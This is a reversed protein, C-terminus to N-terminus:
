REVRAFFGGTGYVGGRVRIVIENAGEVLDIPIRQGTHDENTWFDWWAALGDRDMFWHFRGNIWVALDDVTSLHLVAPGAARSRVSTRFYAVSRPGHYDTVTSTVVTGRADTAFPRWREAFADPDRALQDDTRSLPGVVQWDTLVSDPQYDVAPLPEGQYAFETISSVTVNDVWVDGGVSRPHLGVAGSELELYPFTLQPTTMDGVYVHCERGVVEIRFRQWEGIRIGAAGVLPTRYEEYLTRGVGFDRHPNVRLYSGNGKIYILGFDLRESVRRFNYIFGLYNHQDDPFYVDGEMRVSGWSESGRVLAYVDGQPRLLLVQGHAPDGSGHLFVGGAGSTEWGDLGREFDDAFREQADAREAPAASFAATVAFVTVAGSGIKM